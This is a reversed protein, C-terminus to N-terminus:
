QLNTKIVKTADYTKGGELVVPNVQVTEVCVFHQYDEQGLDAM